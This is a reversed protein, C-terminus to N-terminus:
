ANGLRRPSQELAQAHKRADFVAAVFFTYAEVEAETTMDVLRKHWLGVKVLRDNLEIGAFLRSLAPDRIAPPTQPAKM